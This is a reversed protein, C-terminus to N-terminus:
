ELGDEFIRRFIALINKTSVITSILCLAATHHVRLRISM